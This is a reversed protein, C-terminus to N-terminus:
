GFLKARKRQAFALLREVFLRRGHAQGARYALMAPVRLVIVTGVEANSTIDLQSKLADARERMGILGFHSGGVKVAPIGVGDDRVTLTFADSAHRIELEINNAQAHKFANTLAESGIRFAQEQVEADLGRSEGHLTSHFQTSRDVALSRGVSTLAFFIDAASARLGMVSDRGEEMVEDAHDLAEELGRRSPDDSPLRAAAVQFRYILGQMGQLMTDHLDRAIREREHLRDQLRARMRVKIQQIRVYFVLWLLTIASLGCLAVFWKTQYFMPAVDFSIAAERDTWVGDSSSAKVRFRYPGPRLDTYFAQRRTDAEVWAVDRGELIYRFQVKQPISLSPATYDIQLDRLHAPLRLGESPLYSSRDAVLQEVHIPPAKAPKLLHKPDISQLVSANAFWLRGDPSRAAKPFWSASAPQAGDYTDFVTFTLRGEPHRWWAGLGSMSTKVLGCETYLWLGEADNLLSFIRPCPLGNDTTMTYSRGARWGILGLPTAALVAGDPLSLIGSINGTRARRHFEIIDAHDGYWHGLDGNIMALWVGDKADTAMAPALAVPIQAQSFEEVVKKGVIRMLLSEPAKLESVAWMDGQGDEAMATIAGTPSGDARTVPTFQGHEFITMRDDLGVWLRGLHDEFLAGVEEGPLGHGPRLSSVTGDHISDLSHVNSIWITGDKAAVVANVLDTNLGERSSFTSIRVDRFRDLGGTTTVWINSESDEYISNVTDSSLGDTSRYHEVRDGAVRYLGSDQTGIWLTHNSDLLLSQVSLTRGDLQPRVYPVLKGDEIKALGLGRSTQTLGVLVSGDSDFSLAQIAGFTGTIPLGVLLSAEPAAPNWRLIQNQSHFWLNGASDPLLDGGALTFPIGAAKGFCRIATGFIKCLPGDTDAPHIRVFWIAGADDQYIRMVYGFGRATEGPYHTLEGHDWHELDSGTGIWLSGDRAPLLSLIRPNRLPEGQTASFRALKAGDFRFLGSRTGVWLYGDSTQAVATTAGSFVGDQLRWAFHSYQTLRLSPQLAHTPLAAILLCAFWM